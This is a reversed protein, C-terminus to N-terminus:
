EILGNNAIVNSFWLASQKPIRRGDQYEIRVLGFRPEYGYAWEFNDMLSWVYYGGVNVGAHLADQTASIHAQLYKIRESDDVFGGENTTENVACGNETIYIKPNDYRDKIDLLVKTLGGPNKEWGLATYGWDQSSVPTMSLKLLGGNPDFAVERNFYYNVGLFDIPQHIIEMDGDHIHPKHASIWEFLEVPYQGKFIPSAFISMWNDNARQFAAVDAEKDSAPLYNRFNMVTGIEGEYGEQRFLQVTKGHALLLHHVAGYAKSYDAIGPALTGTAYGNYAIAHPENFTTWLPIRDALRNLVLNAYEAFWDACDRNPWGGADQIYQPLDWHYLTANPIINVDLLHDVLRNYFDIGKENIQGHGHPLVRPWSISFRYTKLNLESMLNVDEHMRHYHDCAVDGNDGNLITFPRHTFRDWISEGKGDENWAGEIQYASTAAGWLFGEPFKGDDM